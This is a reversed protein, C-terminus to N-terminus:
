DWDSGLVEDGGPTFAAWLTEKSIAPRLFHVSDDATVVVFSGSERGLGEHPKAPDVALDDPKTWVVAHAEDAQVLLITNATGDSFETPFRRGTPGGTFAVNKGVPALYVTKGAENLKRSTGRYVEPMKEILKKNHESDWPEDLHFEKYLKEEGLYPLLHVRWSLLPKGEKGFNAVAPLRTEHRDAYSIAALALQRLHKSFEARAALRVSQRVLPGLLAHAQKEDLALTVRDGAVEPAAGLIKDIDPLAARVAKQEGLAKLAKALAEKLAEASAADAAQATLRLAIGPALDLGVAAWKLGRTLPKSPAGGVEKPLTPMMEGFVRILDPPPILAVQAAGDGAADLAAALEPRDAPKLSRLRAKAADNGAVVAGGIKEGRSGGWFGLPKKLLDGLAKADAKEGLPVIVVPANPVDTLSFVVYVERGGAAAFDSLWQDAQTQLEKAGAVDIGEYPGFAGILGAANLKKVDVRAVAFTQGDIFPAIAKARAAAGTDAAAPMAVALTLALALFKKM